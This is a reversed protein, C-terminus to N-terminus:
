VVLRYVFRPKPPDEVKQLGHLKVYESEKMGAAKAEDWVNRKHVYVGDRLYHYASRSSTFGAPEFNAAKYLTGDHGFAPDSYAVVAVVKEPLMKMTKGLFWSATNAPLGDVLVFRRLELFDGEGVIARGAGPYSPRGFAAVGLLEGTISRLGLFFQGVPTSGSYHWRDIFQVAEIRPVPIVQFDDTRDALHRQIFAVIERRKVCRDVVTETHGDGVDQCPWRQSRWWDIIAQEIAVAREADMPGWIGLGEQEYGNRYLHVTLRHKPNNSIGVKWYGDEHHALYLFGDKTLQYGTPSCQPCGDLPGRQIDHVFHFGEHGCIHRMLHPHKSGRWEEVPVLLEWHHAKLIELSTVLSRRRRANAKGEPGHPCTLYGHRFAAELQVLQMHQVHGCGLLFDQAVCSGAIPATPQANCAAARSIVQEVTVLRKVDRKRREAAPLSRMRERCGERFVDNKHSCISCGSTGRRAADRLCYPRVEVIMGCGPIMETGVHRVKCPYGM